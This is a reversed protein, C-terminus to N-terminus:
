KEQNQAFQMGHENRMTVSLKEFISNFIQAHVTDPWDLEVTKSTYRLATHLDDRTVNFELASGSSTYLVYQGLVAVYDIYSGVPMFIELDDSSLCYDYYPTAPIRLYTLTIDVINNPIFEFRGSGEFALPTELPNGNLVGRRFRGIQTYPRIEAPKDDLILGLTYRFDSPYTYFVTGAPFSVGADKVFASLDQMEFIVAALEKKQSAAINQALKWYSQFKETTVFKLENNFQQLSFGNGKSDKNSLDQCYRYGEDITM